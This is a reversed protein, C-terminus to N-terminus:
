CAARVAQVFEAVEDETTAFSTMLRVEGTAADWVNFLYERQLAAVGRAPLCAFVANAQVPRTISVADIGSLGQALVSAM